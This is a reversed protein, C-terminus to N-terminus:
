FAGFDPYRRVFVSAVEVGHDARFKQDDLPLQIDGDDDKFQDWYPDGGTEKRGPFLKDYRSVEYQSKPLEHGQFSLQGLRMKLFLSGNFWGVHIGHDVCTITDELLLPKGDVKLTILVEATTQTEGINLYRSIVPVPLQEYMNMEAVVAGVIDLSQVSAARVAEVVDPIESWRSAKLNDHCYEKVTEESINGFRFHYRIRGPRCILNEDVGFINNISLLFLCHKSAKTGDLVSLLAEQPSMGDHHKEMSGRFMKEFEDIVVVTDKLGALVNPLMSTYQDVLVVPMGPLLQEIVLKITLSKGLGKKGSLLVGLNQDPVKRFTEVVHNSIWGPNGYVPGHAPVYGALRRFYPEDNPPRYAITWAGAPLQPEVRISDADTWSAENSTLLYM